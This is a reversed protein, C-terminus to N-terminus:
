QNDEKLETYIVLRDIHGGQKRDFTGTCTILNLMRRSTYGFIEFVPANDKPFIKKDRVIFTLNEGQEGTVIVEDGVQLKELHFFIAPGTKSDVHGALVANGRDGPKTGPEFWGVEMYDTPVGMQGNELLGVNMVKAHVEIAPISLSTPIVGVEQDRIIPEKSTGFTSPQSTAQDTKSEILKKSNVEIGSPNSAHIQSANEKTIPIQEQTCGALLLLSLLFLLRLM